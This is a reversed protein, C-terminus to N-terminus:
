SSITKRFRLLTIMFFVIGMFILTLFQPWVVQFGAGRFLISQALSVFHPTPTFMMLYQVFKPMSEQPTFGGSLLELPLLVLIMLLAFQPMSRALTGMFIGMSTTAFLNLSVGILFLSLSGEIPVSLLGEVVVLLSFISALFVVLGMALIKSVMIEFPTIPMVLLHEITGHERERILAAGTLVISIMTVANILETIAGFWVKTLTPNFRIRTALNVMSSPSSRYHAIFEDVEQHIINHIYGSGNFAQSLRTADVNLQITPTRGALLDKQFEPPIDVAFTYFGADLGADMEPQTILVPKIFYPPYFADVIRQSLISHDEDVIAIPAKNLVEPIAKAGSYVSITFSFLILVLMIPDHFLSNLEKFILQLINGGM